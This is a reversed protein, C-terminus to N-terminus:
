RGEETTRGTSNKKRLRCSWFVELELRVGPEGVLQKKNDAQACTSFSILVMMLWKQATERYSM